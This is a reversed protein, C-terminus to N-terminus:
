LLKESFLGFFVPIDGKALEFYTQIFKQAETKLYKLIILPCISKM